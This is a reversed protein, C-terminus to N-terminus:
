KCVWGDFGARSENCPAVTPPAELSYYVKFNDGTKNFDYVFLPDRPSSDGPAMRYNMSVAAPPYAQSVAVNNLTEFVSSRVAATKVPKDNTSNARYGTGVVVGIYDRFYGNEITMSGDGRGPEPKQDDKFFPSSIGTRMGQVNANHIAISKAFYNGVWVGAPSEFENALVSKDGRVTVNEVTLRDTPTATIGHRSPNWVRFNTISGNWGLAVGTQIAGYAENGTFELVAADTTDILKTEKDISTDAGKFAPIHVDGLAGAALM